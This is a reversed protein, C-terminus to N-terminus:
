PLNVVKERDFDCSWMTHVVYGMEKLTKEKKLTGLYRLKLSKSNICLTDTMPFVDSADMTGVDMSNWSMNWEKNKWFTDM